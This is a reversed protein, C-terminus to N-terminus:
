WENIFYKNRLLSTFKFGNKHLCTPFGVEGFNIGDERNTYKTNQDGKHFIGITNEIIQLRNSDSFYFGGDTWLEPYGFKAEHGLMMRGDDNGTKLKGNTNEGVYIMEDSLLKIADNYWKENKPGFDEEFLAVFTKPQHKIYLHVSWLASITGGWNYSTIVIPVTGTNKIFLSIENEVIEAFTMDDLMVVIIFIKNDNILQYQNIHNVINSLKNKGYYYCISYVLM